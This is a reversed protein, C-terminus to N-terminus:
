PSCRWHPEAQARWELLLASREEASELELWESVHVYGCRECRSPAEPESWVHVCRECCYYRDDNGM